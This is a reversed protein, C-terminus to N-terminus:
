ASLQAPPRVGRIGELKVALKARPHIPTRLHRGTSVRGATSAGVHHPAPPQQLRGAVCPTGSRGRVRLQGGPRSFDLQVSNWYAWHDLAIVTFETGQDCQVVEPLKGRRQGAQALFSAFDTGSFSRAVHLAVCERTCIDVLTFIRIPSRNALTDYMFDMAWRTNPALVVPDGLRMTVARRRRPRRPKFQLGEAKYLRHTKKHNVPWGDRRILVHLRKHGFAPRAQALERLRGRLALDPDRCSQYRLVSREVALARCARRESVQYAAQAWRMADRRQAPSVM